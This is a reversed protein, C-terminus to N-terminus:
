HELLQLNELSHNDVTAYGATMSVEQGNESLRVVTLELLIPRLIEM